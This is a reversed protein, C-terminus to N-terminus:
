AVISKRKQGGLQLVMSYMERSECLFRLPAYDAGKSPIPNVSRDFFPPLPSDWRGADRPICKVAKACFDPPALPLKTPM